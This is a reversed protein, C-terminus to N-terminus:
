PLADRAEADLSELAVRATSRIQASGASESTRELAARAAGDKLLALARIANLSPAAEDSGAADEARTPVPAGTDLIEFLVPEGSADGIRALSIAANWRVDRDRDSLATRLVSAGDHDGMQGLAFVAMKRVGPDTDAAAARLDALSDRDAIQMLGWACFLRVEGDADKLGERLVAAARADGSRGLALALYRRLKLDGASGADRFAAAMGPILFGVSGPAGSRVLLSLDYGSQWRKPDGVWPLLFGRRGKLDNLTTRPDPHRSRLVQLGFFVTVLVTVLSLPVIFFQLVVKWDSRDDAM